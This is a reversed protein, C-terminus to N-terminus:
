TMNLKYVTVFETPMSSLQITHVTQGSIKPKALYSFARNKACHNFVNLAPSM